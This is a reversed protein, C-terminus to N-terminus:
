LNFKHKEMEVIKILEEKSPFHLKYTSSFIIKNDKPLTLKVATTNKTTSLLIGITDSEYESKIHENYYNVYATMQGIEKHTVRGIKLDILVHCKLIRNYFVLDIFFDTNELKVRVQSGVFMFGKGLELMFEKLHNLINKELDSESYNQTDKLNLFELIYPDKVLDKGTTIVQGQIPLLARSKNSSNLLLREYLCSKRQRQLTRVDWSANICEHM